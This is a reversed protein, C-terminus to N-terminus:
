QKQARNVWSALSSPMGMSEKAKKMDESMMQLFGSQQKTGALLDRLATSAFWFAMASDGTHGVPFQRLEDVLQDVAAITYPDSKDYPLIIRDNEFLIAMSEVGIFPDFKEGGTTFSALPLNKEAMDRKLAVQYGNTEVLIRDHRLGDAREGITNRWEKPTFKGRDLSLLQIMDDLRRLGLGVMANDDAQEEESAALDIGGTLAKFEKREDPSLSRILKYNAGREKAKELWEEKFKQDERSIINNQYAKEFAVRNSRFKIYLDEFSFGIFKDEDIKRKQWLLKVGEHMKEYNEDLYMQAALKAEIDGQLRIGYWHEWMDMHTPWEIIAKYKKRYDWAGDKLLESLLDDPHWITGVFIVRGGPVLIPLLVEYFWQRLKQRQEFTRTNDPSLIDDCIIEDVRKSLITGGVGVTSITPDKLDVRPRDIIIERDTWKEPIKPKLQGAFDVYSQDREIHQKIERLFSVPQAEANGVMLIRINKDEEIRKLPYNVSFSTSKTHGRPAALAIMRYRKDDLIRYWENHHNDNYVGLVEQTFMNSGRTKITRKWLRDVAIEFIAKEEESNM